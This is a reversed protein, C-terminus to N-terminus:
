MCLLSSQHLSNPNLPDGLADSVVDHGAAIGIDLLTSAMAIEQELAARVNDAEGVVSSQASPVASEAASAAPQLELQADMKKLTKM